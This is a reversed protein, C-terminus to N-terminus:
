LLQLHQNTVMTPHHHILRLAQLVHANGEFQYDILERIHLQQNGTRRRQTQVVAQTLWEGPTHKFVMEIGNRRIFQEVSIAQKPHILQQLRPENIARVGINQIM